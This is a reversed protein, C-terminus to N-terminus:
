GPPAVNLNARFFNTRDYKRKLDQLSPLNMRFADGSSDHDMDSSWNSYIGGTAFPAMAAWFERAWAVHQDGEASAPWRASIGFTYAADRHPYATATPPVRNFAGHFHLLWAATESSTVRSCYEVFTGIAEDPLERLYHSRWYNSSGPGNGSNFMTHLDVISMRRVGDESPSGYTRLPNLVREATAESGAYSVVLLFMPDPTQVFIIMSALEDPANAMRERWNRIVDRAQAASYAVTGAVVQSLAHLRYQFSTVVGFNGGGGRLGWLLDPNETDSARVLDGGATAVEASLLNDCTLGYKPTLWGEGGGLTLGALGITSITGTPLVLGTVQTERLLLGARVGPGSLAVRNAPDVQIETMRSLDIVMGNEVIAFGAAHHGGGRVAVPLDNERAFAICRLVDSSDACQAIAWPRRDILWNWVRRASDYAEQDPLILRGTLRSQFQRIKAESLDLGREAPSRCGLGGLGLSVAAMGSTKLFVRRSVVNHM